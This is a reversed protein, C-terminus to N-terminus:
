DFLASSLMSRFRYGGAFAVASAHDCLSDVANQLDFLLPRQADDATAELAAFVSQFELLATNYAMSDALQEDIFNLRDLYLEEFINKM